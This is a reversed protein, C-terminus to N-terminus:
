MHGDVQGGNRETLVRTAAMFISGHVAGLRAIYPTQKTTTNVHNSLTNVNHQLKELQRALNTYSEKKPPHAVSAYMSVRPAKDM